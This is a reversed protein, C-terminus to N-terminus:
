RQGIVSKQQLIVLAYVSLASQSNEQLNMFYIALFYDIM